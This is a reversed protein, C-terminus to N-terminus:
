HMVFEHQLPGDQPLCSDQIRYTALVTDMMEVVVLNRLQKLRERVGSCQVDCLTTLAQNLASDSLCYGEVVREGYKLVLELDTLKLGERYVRKVNPGSIRVRNNVELWRRRSGERSNQQITEM